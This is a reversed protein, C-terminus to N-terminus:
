TWSFRSSIGLEYRHKVARPTKKHGSEYLFEQVSIGVGSVGLPSCSGGGVGGGQGGHAPTLYGTRPLGESQSPASYPQILLM